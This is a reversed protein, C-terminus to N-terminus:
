SPLRRELHKLGPIHRATSFTVRASPAALDKAEEELRASAADNDFAQRLQHIPRRVTGRVQRISRAVAHSGLAATPFQPPM